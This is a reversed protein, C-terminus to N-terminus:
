IKAFHFRKSLLVDNLFIPDKQFKAVPSGSHRAQYNSNCCNQQMDGFSGKLYEGPLYSSTVEEYIKSLNQCFKYCYLVTRPTRVSIM